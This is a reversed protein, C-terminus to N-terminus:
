HNPRDRKTNGNVYGKAGEGSVDYRLFRRRVINYKFISLDTKKGKPIIQEEAIQKFPKEM